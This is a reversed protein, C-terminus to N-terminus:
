ATANVKKRNIEWHSIGLSFAGLVSPLWFSIFRDIITVGVAISPEIGFGSFLIIMAGETTGFGGPSFPVMGMFTSVVAVVALVTFSVSTGFAVFVLYTRIIWFSWIAMSLISSIILKKRDKIFDRITDNFLKLKDDVLHEYKKANGPSFREILNMFFKIIKKGQDVNYVVYMVAGVIATLFIIAAVLSILVIGPLDWFFLVNFVSLYGLLIYPMTDFIRDSLVTAFSSSGDMGTLKAFLYARLPEGGGKGVPTVNNVFAGALLSLFLPGSPVNSEICSIINRWRLGGVYISALSALTALAVFTIDANQLAEWAEWFGVKRILLVIILLGISFTVSTKALRSKSIVSLCEKSM